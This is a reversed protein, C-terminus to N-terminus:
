IATIYFLKILEHYLHYIKNKCLEDSQARAKIGSYNESFPKALFLPLNIVLLKDIIVKGNRQQKAAPRLCHGETIHAHFM